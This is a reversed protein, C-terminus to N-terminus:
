SEFVKVLKIKDVHVVKNNRWKDCKLVYSVDNLREVVTCEDCYFNQWKPSRHLYRRPSYCLVKDGKSFRKPSVRRDYWAKM